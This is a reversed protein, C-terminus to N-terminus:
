RRFRGPLFALGLGVLFVGAVIFFLLSQQIWSIAPVSLAMVAGLFCLQLSMLSVGALFAGLALLILLVLSTASSTLIQQVGTLLMINMVVLVAVWHVAQTWVLRVRQGREGESEWRSFICVAATLLALFEWYGNLPGHSMNSYTVGGLALALVLLYPAQRRLLSMMTAADADERTQRDVAPDKESM